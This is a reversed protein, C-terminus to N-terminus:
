LCQTWVEMNFTYYIMGNYEKLKAPISVAKLVCKHGGIVKNVPKPQYPNFFHSFIATLGDRTRPIDVDRRLVQISKKGDAPRGDYITLCNLAVKTEDDYGDIADDEAMLGQGILYTKLDDIFM